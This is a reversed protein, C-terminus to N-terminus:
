PVTRHVIGTNGNQDSRLQVLMIAMVKFEVELGGQSEWQVTTMEMGVIARAVDAVQEVLIFQLGELYDATEVAQIGKLKLIRERLTNDGKAASYDDDLYVDWDPSNYMVWPGYHFNARSQQRMALVDQVTDAPTGTTPDTLNGTLRGPFNTYGYVTGGGFAYSDRTGLTMKEIEEAVRRAALEATTTDLPSGGTRSAAIQRASFGFDKHTIPLPISKLDFEPRDSESRRLGDMSVTAPTIDSMDEYELVTKAFGDPIIFQLGASRLDGFVRLRPKAVRIIAEDLIKWDDKRLTAPVNTVLKAKPKGGENVTIYSRGDDGVYPRLINTDMNSALLREAVSGHAQGRFIFDEPM